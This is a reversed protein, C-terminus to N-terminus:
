LVFFAWEPKKQKHAPSSEFRWPIAGMRGELTRTFWNRWRRMYKDLM